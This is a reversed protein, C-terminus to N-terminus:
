DLFNPLNELKSSLECVKRTQELPDTLFYNKRLASAARNLAYDM